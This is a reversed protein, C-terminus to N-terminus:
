RPAPPRDSTVDIIEFPPSEPNEIALGGEVIGLSAAPVLTGFGGAGSADVTLEIFGFPYLQSNRPVSKDFLHIPFDTYIRVKRFGDETDFARIVTIESGALKGANVFGKAPLRRMADRLQMQGGQRLHGLLEVVEEDTSLQYIRLVLREATLGPEIGEPIVIHGTWNQPVPLSAPPPAADAAALGLALVALAALAVTRRLRSALLNRDDSTPVTSM